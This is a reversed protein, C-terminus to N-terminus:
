LLEKCYDWGNRLDPIETKNKLLIQEPKSQKDSDGQKNRLTKGGKKLVQIVIVL